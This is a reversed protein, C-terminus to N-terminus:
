EDPEKDMLAAVGPLTKGEMFEISAGGGTSVHTMKCDLGLARVAEATSGGGIVTITEDMGALMEAIHTTGVAFPELEFVGLPGNWVVTKAPKLAVEFMTTTKPGIDMIQWGPLIERTHVVQRHASANFADAVVVDVPLLVNLGREGAMHLLEDADSVSEQAVYSDGTELGQAVLFTAAMGGGILLSDVKTILNRMTAIKSSAKAGGLIAAFPRRPDELADGLMQLERVVLFGAVAPLFRAVGVTSAHARHIAGFADNVFIEALSGLGAALEPDNGSEGPHFRLNELMIVGGPPLRDIADRVVPGFCESAQIVQVGLLESLSRSVPGMRLEEVVRGDPRGMHSCLVVRCQRDILYRVTRLSERIRVDDSIQTTGPKFPVNYDVRVLVTKGALDVDEITMKRLTDM